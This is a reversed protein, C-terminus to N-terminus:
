VASMNFRVDSFKFFEYFKLIKAKQTKQTKSGKQAKWHEIQGQMAQIDCWM